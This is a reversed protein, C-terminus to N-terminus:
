TSTAMRRTSPTCLRKTAGVRGIARSRSGAATTRGRWTRTTVRRRRSEASGRGDPRITYIEFTPGDRDSAFAILDDPRRGRRSTTTSRARDHAAAGRRDLREPDRPRQGHAGLARYVVRNGDPAWSPFGRNGGHTLQRFNSGDADVVAIDAGRRQDEPGASQGFVGQFFQGLGFVLREGTPSWMPALASATAHSFAVTHSAGDRRTIWIDNKLIGAPASNVAYRDGGPASSAYIGTRVLSFSSNKSFWARHPPWKRTWRAIFRCRAPRGAVVVSQSVRRPRRTRWRHGRHRRGTSGRFLRRSECASRGRRGNGAPGLHSNAGRVRRSTSRCSKRRAAPCVARLTSSTADQATTQYYVLGSGDSLWSPSGAFQSTTIRRVDTGDARM